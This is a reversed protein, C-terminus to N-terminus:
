SIDLALDRAVLKAVKAWDEETFDDEDTDPGVEECAAIWAEEVDSDANEGKAGQV